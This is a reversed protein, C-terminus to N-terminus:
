RQDEKFTMALDIAEDALEHLQMVCGGDFALPDSDDYYIEDLEDRKKLLRNLKTNYDENTM